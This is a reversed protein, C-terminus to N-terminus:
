GTTAMSGVGAGARQSPTSTCTPLSRLHRFGFSLKLSQGSQGSITTIGAPSNMIPESSYEFSFGTCLTVIVLGIATLLNSTVKAMQSAQTLAPPQLYTGSSRLQPRPSRGTILM